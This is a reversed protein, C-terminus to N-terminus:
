KNEQYSKTTKQISTGPQWERLLQQGEVLQVPTLVGRLRNVGNDAPISGQKAALSYLMYALVPNKHVGAGQEYLKALGQLGFMDGQIAALEYWKAAETADKPLGDEEFYLYGLGAQGAALGQAAALRYWHEAEKVDRPIQSSGLLLNGAQAQAKAHGQKAALRYWRLAEGYQYPQVGKGEWYLEGMQYQADKQGKEALVRWIKIAGDFDGASYAALGAEFSPASLAVQDRSSFFIASVVVLVAITGFILRGNDNKTTKEASNPEVSTQVFRKKRAVFYYVLGGVVNFLAVVFLWVVKDEKQNFLVDIFMWAWFVLGAVICVGIWLMVGSVFDM